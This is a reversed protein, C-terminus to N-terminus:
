ALGVQAVLAHLLCDLVDLQPQVFVLFQYILERAGFEELYVHQDGQGLGEHRLGVVVVRQIRQGLGLEELAAIVLVELILLLTLDPINLNQYELGLRQAPLLIEGVSEFDDLIHNILGFRPLQAFDLIGESQHLFRGNQRFHVRRLLVVFRDLM